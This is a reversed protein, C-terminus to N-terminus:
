HSGVADDGDEELLGGRYDGCGRRHSLRNAVNPRCGRNEARPLSSWHGADATVGTLKSARWGATSPAACGGRPAGGNLLAADQDRRAVLRSAQRRAGRHDSYTMFSMHRLLVNARVRKQNKHSDEARRIRWPNCGGNNTTDGIPDILFDTLLNLGPLMSAFYSVVPRWSRLEVDRGQRDPNHRATAATTWADIASASPRPWRPPHPPDSGVCNGLIVRSTVRLM